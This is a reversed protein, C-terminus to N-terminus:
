LASPVIICAGEGDLGQVAFGAGAPVPISNMLYIKEAAQDWLYWGEVVSAGSPLTDPDIEDERWYEFFGEVTEGNALEFKKTAGTGTVFQLTSASFNEGPILDALTWLRNDVAKFTNCLWNLAGDSLNNNQYGVVNQSEIADGFSVMGAAVAAAFMLKKM